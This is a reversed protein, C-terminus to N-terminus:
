SNNKKNREINMRRWNIFKETLDNLNQAGKLFENLGGFKKDPPNRYYESLTQKLANMYRQDKTNPVIVRLDGLANKWDNQLLFVEARNLRAQGNLPSSSLAVNYYAVAEAYRSSSRLTNGMQINSLIHYPHAKLARGFAEEAGKTNKTALKGMGEFFAVPNGFDDLSYYVQAAEQGSQIMARPSRKSFADVAEKAAKASAIRTNIVYSSFLTSLMFVSLVIQNPVLFKQGESLKIFGSIGVASYLILFVMHEPRELPFEFLGYIVFSLIGVFSFIYFLKQTQPEEAIAAKLAYWLSFVLFGIFGLLGVIGTESFVWLIDNHPRNITTYGDIISKNLGRLGQKVFNIRWNGAGVGTVPSEKIMEISSNWYKIRLDLNSTNFLNESIKTTSFIILTAIVFGGLGVGIFKFIRKSDEQNKSLIFYLIVVTAFAIALALYVSRTRLLAMDLLAISLAIIGSIRWPKNKELITMAALPSALLLASALFNKHVYLEKLGYLAELPNSSKYANLIDPLSILGILLLFVTGGKAIVDLQLRKHYFGSVLGFLLGGYVLNRVTTAWAEAMNTASSMSIFHAIIFLIYGGTAWNILPAKAKYKLFVALITIALAGAFLQKPLLEFDILTNFDTKAFPFIVLAAAVIISEFNLKKSEHKVAMGM